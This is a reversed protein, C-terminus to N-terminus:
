VLDKIDKLTNNTVNEPSIDIKTLIIFLPLKLSLIIGLHERTMRLVGMNAAIVLAAYDIQCKTIGNLTNSSISLCLFRWSLTPTCDRLVIRM